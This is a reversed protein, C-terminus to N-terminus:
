IFCLCGRLSCVIVSFGNRTVSPLARVLSYSLHYALRSSLLDVLSICVLVPSYTIRKFTLDRSIRPQADTSTRYWVGLSPLTLYIYPSHCTHIILSGTLTFATCTLSSVPTLMSM